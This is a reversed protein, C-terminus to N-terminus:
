LYFPSWCSCFVLAESEHDFDVLEPARKQSRHALAGIGYIQIVCPDSRVIMGILWESEM